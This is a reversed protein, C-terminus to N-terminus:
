TKYRAVLSSFRDSLAQLSTAVDEVKRTGLMTDAQASNLEQVVAVIQEVGTTQQRTAVAIQRAADTSGRIAESLGTIAGGADRALGMAARARRSGEETSAVVARTRSQVEGVIFKARGAAAKSGEALRRMEQAVIVFGRGQEGARAAEISANLALLNVQESLDEIAGMLENIALTRETLDAISAAIADVQQGLQSMGLVSEEVVKAGRQANEESRAATRIVSEAQETAERATQALESVAAGAGVLATAQQSAMVSQSSVASRLQGSERQIEAAANRLDGLLSRLGDAMTEFSQSLRGIEDHSAISARASLDGDRAIGHTVETLRQLPKIITRGFLFAAIVGLLVTVLLMSVLRRTIANVKARRAVMDFGVHVTGLGGGLIPAQLDLFEEGDLSVTAASPRDGLARLHQVILKAKDQAQRPDVLKGEPSTIASYSLEDDQDTIVIYAAKSAGAAENIASQVKAEQLTALVDVLSTALTAPLAEALDNSKPDLAKTLAPVVLVAVAVVVVLGLGVVPIAVKQSLSLNM